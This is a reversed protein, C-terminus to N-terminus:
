PQLPELPNILREGVEYEPDQELVVGAPDAWENLLINDLPEVIPLLPLGALGALAPDYSDPDYEARDAFLDITLVGAALLVSAHRFYLDAETQVANSRAVFLDNTVDLVDRLTRIGATQQRQVGDVARQAAAVAAQFRPLALQSAQMQNWDAALQQRVGRRTDEVSFQAAINRQEAERRRSQLRGGAYLPINLRLSGAVQETYDTNDYPSSNIRGAAAEATVQPGMAARAGALQALSAQEIYRQALIRPNAIEASAYLNELTPLPPLPPPPALADPYAGVLSRYSAASVELASQAQFLRGAALELRNATQDLDPATADRLALRSATINRQQLLLNYTERAVDYLELDRRVSVYAAIVDLLLQQSAERTNERSALASAEALNLAAALRGSTFLPQTLMVEASTGFGDQEIANPLGEINTRTYTFTHRATLDLQPGYSARAQTVQEDTARSVARQVELSPNNEYARLAAEELTEAYAPCAAVAIIAATAALLISRTQM